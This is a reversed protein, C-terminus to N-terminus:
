RGIWWRQNGEGHCDPWAIVNHGRGGSGESKSRDVDLCYDKGGIRARIVGNQHEAWWRQNESGHCDPWAIVNYGRGGSGTPASTDVDLCYATGKFRAWWVGNQRTWDQNGGGHCDPWVIVNRGANNHGRLDQTNVDLCGAGSVSKITDAAVPAAAFATMLCVLSLNFSSRM